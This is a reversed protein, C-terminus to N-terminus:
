AGAFATGYGKCVNTSGSYGNYQKALNGPSKSKIRQPALAKFDSGLVLSVTGATVSPDLQLTVNQGVQAEVTRAAALDAASGYEVVSQTYSFNAASSAGLTHFGRAGLAQETTGAIGQVGSGNLVEVSVKSTSLLKPATGHSGKGKAKGKSAGAKGKKGKHVHPLKVDHAVASWLKPDQTM